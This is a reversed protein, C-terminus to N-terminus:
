SEPAVNPRARSEALGMRACLAPTFTVDVLWAVALM